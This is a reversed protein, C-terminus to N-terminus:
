KCSASSMTCVQHPSRQFWSKKKKKAKRQIEMRRHHTNAKVKASPVPAGGCDALGMYLEEIENSSCVLEHLAICACMPAASQFVAFSRKGRGASDQLARRIREGRTKFRLRAGVRFFQNGRGM